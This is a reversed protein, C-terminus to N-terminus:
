EGNGFEGAITPVIWKRYEAASGGSGDVYGTDGAKGVVEALSYRNEGIEPSVYVGAM